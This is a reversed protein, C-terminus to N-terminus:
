RSIYDYCEHVFWLVALCADYKTVKLLFILKYYQTNMNIKLQHKTTKGTQNKIQVFLSVMKVVWYAHINASATKFVITLNLFM